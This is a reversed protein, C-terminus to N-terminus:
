NKLFNFNFNFNKLLVGRSNTDREEWILAGGGLRHAM